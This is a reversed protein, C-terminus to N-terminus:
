GKNPVMKEPKNFGFAQVLTKSFITSPTALNNGIHKLMLKDLCSGEWSTSAHRPSYQKEMTWSLWCHEIKYIPWEDPYWPIGAGALENDMNTEPHKVIGRCTIYILFQM